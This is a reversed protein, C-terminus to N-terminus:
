AGLGAARRLAAVFGDPEDVALWLRRAERRVGFPGEVEVPSRLSVVVDPPAVVVTNLGGAEGPDDGPRRERVEELLDLPVDATWRLGVRVLLRDAGLLHPRTRTARWDAVLWLGGYVSAATLAWAAVVSWGAVLVHVALAEVAVALSLAFVVAGWGGTRHYPYVDAGAPTGGGPPRLLYRAMSVEDALLRGATGAGLVAAVAQRLRLVPDPTPASRYARVVRRARLVLYVLAGAELVPALEAAARLWGEGGAPLLAKGALWAAVLVPLLTAAPMGGRRVGLWVWLLPVVVLLDVTVAGGLLRPRAAFAASQVVMVEAAAVLLLAAALVLHPRRHRLLAIV